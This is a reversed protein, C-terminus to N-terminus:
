LHPRYVSGGSPFLGPSIQLQVERADRLLRKGAGAYTLTQLRHLWSGDRLISRGRCATPRSRQCRPAERRIHPYVDPGRLDLLTHLKIAGKRQRFKAWPFLSLCLDITTSDFAYVTEDLEELFKEQQYLKRAIGILSMALDAYIRWDREENADALTSRSVKGHIGMHYVKHSQARLCAEIDRLSERYTIQAFAMCLFQDLCTFSKVNSNGQYRAVCRRFIHMPIFDMVQSFILKGVYM